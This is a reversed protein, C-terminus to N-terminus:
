SRGGSGLGSWALPRAETNSAVPGVVPVTLPRAVSAARAGASGAGGKVTGRVPELAFLKGARLAWRHRMRGRHRSLRREVSVPSQPAEHRSGRVDERLARSFGKRWNRLGSRGAANRRPV